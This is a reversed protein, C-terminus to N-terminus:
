QASQARAIRVSVELSEEGGGLRLGRVPAADRYDRGCAIRVYHPDPCIRNAADFGVWGLDPVLVEAWAHSAADESDAGACLYGSVYRAPFGLLRACAILVHAHDQCVGAGAALAEAASTAVDTREPQYDIRDRVLNMLRHLRPLPPEAEVGAVLGAIAPDSATLATEALFFAPPLTEPVGQAVGHTDRTDVWGEVEISVAEVPGEIRHSAVPNGFGDTGTAQVRQGAVSVRWQRVAQENGPAPWLRLAQNVRFAPEAYRYTTRHHVHLHM